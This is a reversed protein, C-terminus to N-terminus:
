CPTLREIAPIDLYDDNDRELAQKRRAKASEVKDLEVGFVEFYAQSMLDRGQEATILGLFQGAHLFGEVRGKEKDTTKGQSKSKMFLNTLQQTAQLAFDQKDMSLIGTIYTAIHLREISIILM